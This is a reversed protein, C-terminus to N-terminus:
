SEVDSVVNKLQRLHRQTHYLLFHQWEVRSMMGIGPFEFDICTVEPDLSYIIKELDENVKHLRGATDQKSLPKTTPEVFEPSKMKLSFDLFINKLTPILARTDAKPEGIKGQMTSIGGSESRLIHDLVQGATWGGQSPAKNLQEESLSDLIRELEKNTKVLETIVDM